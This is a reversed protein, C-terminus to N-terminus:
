KNIAAGVGERWAAETMLSAADWQGSTNPGYLMQAENLQWVVVQPRSQQFAPSKLYDLFVAWPGFNGYKWTLGVPRDLASSLTQPFGLYPQVFSNGVVHVPNVASDLLGSADAKNARVVYIQQGLSKRQAATMLEAFDGFRREKVWAGLKTGGGAQGNLTWSATITQATARAAAEASWATWHSDKQLFATQDDHEVSKLVPMLDVTKIDASNLSAIINAYRDKAAASISRGAPLKDEYFRAKLPAVLVVLGIGRKGLEDRAARMLGVSNQIGAKGADSINDQAYFLWDDKGILVAQAQAAAPALIAGALILGAVFTCSPRLATPTHKM